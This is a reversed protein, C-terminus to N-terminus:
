PTTSITILVVFPTISDEAELCYLLLNYHVSFVLNFFGVKAPPTSASYGGEEGERLERRQRKAEVM